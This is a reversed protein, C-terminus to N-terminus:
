LRKFLNQIDTKSIKEKWDPGIAHKWMHDLKYAVEAMAEIQEETWDKSLNQPLEIKHQKLMQKFERVGEGYYDELHQFVVCNAYCHKYHLIKSLGYSLAHCIGVESYTLSLGGM